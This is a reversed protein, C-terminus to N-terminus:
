QDRALGVVTPVMRFDLFWHLLGPGLGLEVEVLRLPSAGGSTSPCTFSSRGGAVISSGM